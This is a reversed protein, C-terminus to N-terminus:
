RLRRLDIEAGVLVVLKDRPQLHWSPGNLGASTSLTAPRAAPLVSVLWAYSGAENTLLLEEQSEPNGDKDIFNQHGSQYALNFNREKGRTLVYVRRFFLPMGCQSTWVPASIRELDCEARLVNNAVSLTIMKQGYAANEYILRVRNESQEFEILRTEAQAAERYPPNSLHLAFLGGWGANHYEFLPNARLAPEQAGKWLVSSFMGHHHEVTLDFNGVRLIEVAPREVSPANVLPEVPAGNENPLPRGVVVFWIGLVAVAAAAAGMAAGFLKPIRAFPHIAAPAPPGECGEHTPNDSVSEPERALQAAEHELVGMVADRFRTIAERSGLILRLESRSLAVGGGRRVFSRAYLDLLQRQEGTLPADASSLEREALDALEEDDLTLRARLCFLSGDPDDALAAFWGAASTDGTM